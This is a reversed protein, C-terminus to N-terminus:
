SKDESEKDNVRHWLEFDLFIGCIPCIPYDIEQDSFTYNCKPCYADDCIGKIDVKRIM